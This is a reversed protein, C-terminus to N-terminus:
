PTRSLVALSKTPLLVVFITRGGIGEVVRTSPRFLLAQTGISETMLIVTPLGVRPETYRDELAIGM